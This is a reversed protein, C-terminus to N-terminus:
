DENFQGQFDATGHRTLAKKVQCGSLLPTFPTYVHIYTYIYTHIYIYINHTPHTPSIFWTGHFLRERWCLCVCVCVCARARAFMRVCMCGNKEPDAASKLYIHFQNWHLQNWLQFAFLYSISKLSIPKVTSVGHVQFGSSLYSISKLSVPKVIWCGMSHISIVNIELFSTECNLVGHLYPLQSFVSKWATSFREM